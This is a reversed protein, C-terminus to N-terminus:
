PIAIIKHFAKLIMMQFQSMKPRKGYVSSKPFTLSGLRAKKEFVRTLVSDFRASGFSPDMVLLQDCDFHKM